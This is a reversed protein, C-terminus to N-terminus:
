FQELIKNGVHATTSFCFKTPSISFSVLQQKLHASLRVDYRRLRQSHSSETNAGPTQGSTQFFVTYIFVYFVILHCHETAQPNTVKGQVAFVLINHYFALIEVVMAVHIPRVCIQIVTNSFGM